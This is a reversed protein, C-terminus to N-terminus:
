SRKLIISTLRTPQQEQGKTLEANQEALGIGSGPNTDKGEASSHKAREWQNTGYNGATGTTKEGTFRFSVAACCLTTGRAHLTSNDRCLNPSEFSRPGRGGEGDKGVRGSASGLRRSTSSAAPSSSSSASVKREERSGGTLNTERKNTSFTSLPTYSTM